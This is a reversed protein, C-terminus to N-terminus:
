AKRGESPHTSSDAVGAEEFTAMENHTACAADLLQLAPVAGTGEGLRMGLDLLPEREFARLMRAHGREASRHTPWLWPTSSPVLRTALLAGATAIFGDLLVLVGRQSARVFAGALAAIELGGLRAALELVVEPDHRARETPLRGHHELADRVVETKHAVGAEDLGTGPGVLAEPEEPLLGCALAAAATTNGIGMEGGIFVRAGRGAARDLADAGASLAEALHRRRMAPERRLNATGRAVRADIAGPHPEAAATGVDVVELSVGAQRCLACIGAGGAVFNAVMQQTVSAPFASIGEVTVGHDAAFVTAAAPRPAPRAEGQLAALQVALEELRGLSGPPKTLREQRERAARGAQADPRMSPAFLWQFDATM